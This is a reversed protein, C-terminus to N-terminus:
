DDDLIEKEGNTWGEQFDTFDRPNAQRAYHEADAWNMQNAAWDEIEYDDMLFLPLTDEELSKEVSNNYADKYYLARHMAIVWVPIDWQSSDPMTVRYKKDWIGLLRRTLNCEIYSDTEYWYCTVGEKKKEPM